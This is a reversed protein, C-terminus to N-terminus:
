IKWFLTLAATASNQSPIVNRYVLGSIYSNGSGLYEVLRVLIINLEEDEVVQAINTLAIVATEQMPVKGSGWLTQLLELVVVRNQHTDDTTLISDQAVFVNLSQAAIIRIDRSSSRLSQLVWDGTPSQGLKLNSPETSHQLIKRLSSLATARARTSKQVLPLLSLLTQVLEGEAESERGPLVVESIAQDNDCAQCGTSEADTSGLINSDEANLACAATGLLSLATCQEDESSNRLRAPAIKSLGLLDTTPSDTLKLTVCQSIRQQATLPSM